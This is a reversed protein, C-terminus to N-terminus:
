KKTTIVLQNATWGRWKFFGNLFIRASQSLIRNEWKPQVTGNSSQITDVTLPAPLSENIWSLEVTVYVCLLSSQFFHLM